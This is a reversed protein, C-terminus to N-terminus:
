LTAITTTVEYSFFTRLDIKLKVCVLDTDCPNDSWGDLDLDEGVGPVRFFPGVEDM